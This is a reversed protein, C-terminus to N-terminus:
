VREEEKKLRKVSNQDVPAGIPITLQIKQLYIRREGENSGAGGQTGATGSQGSFYFALYTVGRQEYLRGSVFTKWGRDGPFLRDWIRGGAAM